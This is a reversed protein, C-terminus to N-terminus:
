TSPCDFVIDKTVMVNFRYGPNRTLTPQVNLQKQAEATGLQGIGQGVSNAITQGVSPATNVNNQNKSQSIQFGASFLSMMGTMLAVKGYHNDVDADFGAMGSQDGGPMGQLMLSSGDAFLLRNWVVLMRQQGIAVHADYTGVIATGQPVLVHRGTRHDYVNERVRACVQGPLDSNAGCGLAAPIVWGAKIECRSLAERKVQNLYGQDPQMEAQRVFQEKRIQKNPDDAQGAAQAAMSRQAAALTTLLETPMGTGGSSLTALQRKLNELMGAPSNPDVNGGNGGSNGRGEGTWSIDLGSQKASYDMEHRQEKLRRAREADPGAEVSAANNAGDIAGIRPKQGGTPISTGVGPPTKDLAATGTVGSVDVTAPEAKASAQGDSVGDILKSIDATEVQGQPKEEKDTPRSEPGESAQRWGDVTAILIFLVVGLIGIGVVVKAKRSVMSVGSIRGKLPVGGSNVVGGGGLDFSEGAM